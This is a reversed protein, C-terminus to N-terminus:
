ITMARETPVFAIRWGLLCDQDRPKAPCKRVRLGGRGRSRPPVPELRRFENLM